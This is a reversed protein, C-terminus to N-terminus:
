GDIRRVSGSRSVAAIWPGPQAHVMRLMRPLAAILARAMESGTASGSTLVFARVGAEMLSRKELPRFRIRNDKTLVVWDNRGALALWAEDRADQPLHDDHIEISAGASRLANAVEHKGLSRDLFFVVSRPAESSSRPASRRKSRM